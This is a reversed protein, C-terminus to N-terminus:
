TAGALRRFLPLMPSSVFIVALLRVLQFATVIPAGLGLIKATLGMEALGGPATALVMAAIPLGDIVALLAGTAACLVMLALTSVSAALVLRPARLLFERTFREGLAIGMMVQAAALLWSPVAPREPLLLAIPVTAAIAGLLWPNALKLRQMGFAVAVGAAILLLLSLPADAGPPAFMAEQMPPVLAILLPPTLVVVLLVRMSQALAIAPVSAGHRAGQVAMEVVGGPASAFWATTADIRHLRLLLLGSLMGCGMLLLAGIVMWPLMPLVLGLVSPTFYLGLAVGVVLQGGQRGGPLVARPVDALCLAIMAFLAGTLWPLPWRIWALLLALLAAALITGGIRAALGLSM